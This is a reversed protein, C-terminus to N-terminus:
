KKIEAKATQYARQVERAEIGRQFDDLNKKRTRLAEEIISIDKERKEVKQERSLMAIDLEKHKEIAKEADQKALNLKEGAERVKLFQERSIRDSEKADRKTNEANLKEKEYEARKRELIANNASVEDKLVGLERMLRGNEVIKHEVDAREDSLRQREAENENALVKNKREDDIVKTERRSIDSEKASIRAEEGQLIKSHNAKQRDLEKTLDSKMKEIEGALLEKSKELASIDSLLQEKQSELVSINRKAKENEAIMDKFESVFDIAKDNM